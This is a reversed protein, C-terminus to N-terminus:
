DGFVVSRNRGDAEGSLPGTPRKVLDLETSARRRCWRSESASRHSPAALWRSPIEDAVISACAPGGLRAEPDGTSRCIIAFEEGGFRAVVDEARMASSLRRAIARLVMDGTQHGREDNVRKFHDIDLLLLALTALHRNAFTLESRAATRRLLAQQSPRDPRREGGVRLPDQQVTGGARGSVHVQSDDRRGDLDQRRREAVRADSVRAGNCFTGNVSGLDKSCSVPRGGPRGRRSSAIRGRRHPAPGRRRQARPGHRGERAQVDRRGSDRRHHGPLRLRQRAASRAPRPHKSRTTTEDTM